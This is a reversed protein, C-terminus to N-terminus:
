LAALTRVYREEDASDAVDQGGSLELAHARRCRQGAGASECFLFGLDGMDSGYQEASRDLGFM